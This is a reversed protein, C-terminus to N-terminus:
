LTERLVAAGCPGVSISLWGNKIDYRKDAQWWKGRSCGIILGMEGNISCGMKWVPVMLKEETPNNNILVAVREGERWRGYTLVGHNNYLFILSGARLARYQKHCSIMAKHFEILDKNEKGWPYTRRNDPDTWGALGAEDGYYITPSGTWTMQFVVAEMMVGIDIGRCAAESGMTHLRGVTKNTRTLFRSHDHNSLENMASQLSHVNMKAMNYTMSEEFAMSNSLKGGDFSESHKEMGTLFWTIPEMFADYNMISDWEDGQLWRSPDGYHEALIIANPNAEKVAKRFDKWFQHNFKESSGLDAAVDLRWGDANIPPSVWKKGINLMYEYLEPSTEYNLKPHNDFGWWSDYCDNNPWNSDYWKFFNHYPSFEDRYAGNPYGKGSYFSEKDMWKNFAGCHNFVGDLIVKIGNAHALDILRALVQNSAVLNVKNTTRSMYMTAYRNHFKDFNLPEGQDLLIAGFHPDVYDYDQIDYKHNSPSVFVPNLYLVEVGLEKLYEMKKMIGQLDGGYFNSIDDNAVPQDWKDIHKAARGLYAYENNVVDNATNGNFFRDIYIQYMVAGRAWEPTKYDPIIAFHYAPDADNYVGRKNYYYRRTYKEVSFYYTVKTSIATITATYYDFVGSSSTKEMRIVLNEKAPDHYVASDKVPAPGVLHLFAADINGRGARLTVTVNEGAKPECPCVFNETEDSFIAQMNIYSRNRGVYLVTKEFKDLFTYPIGMM